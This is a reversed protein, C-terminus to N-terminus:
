TGWQQAMADAIGQYTVSRQKWRNESPGINNQGSPTQNSYREKKIINTPVLKPLNKLWLCTRKSADDGFQWPQITQTYKINGIRELAYKHPVPNEIAVKECPHKLFLNFFEASEDLKRWRTKDRHLWSVGSNAFYTCPPHAIILDWDRYLVERIDGQHHNGNPQDSALLDCSLADHGKKAFADRVKGSYECAILVKM